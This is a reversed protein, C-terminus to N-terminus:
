DSRRLAFDVDELAGVLVDFYNSVGTSRGDADEKLKWIFAENPPVEPFEGREEDWDPPTFRDM